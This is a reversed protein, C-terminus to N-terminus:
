RPSEGSVENELRKVRASLNEIIESLTTLMRLIERTNNNYEEALALSRDTAKAVRSIQALKKGLATMGDSRERDGTTQSEETEKAM